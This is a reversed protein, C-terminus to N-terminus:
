RAARTSLRSVIRSLAASWSYERRVALLRSANTQKLYASMYSAIAEPTAAPHYMNSYPGAWAAVEQTAPVFIPVRSLTAELIPIVFTERDSTMLVADALAMMSLTEAFTVRPDKRRLWSLVTVTDELGRDGITQALQRRYDDTAEDHPSPSGAIVLHANPWDRKLHAVVDVARVLAKRRSMKAPVFIIPFSGELHRNRYVTAIEDAVRLARLSHVGAPVFHFNSEDIGLANALQGCMPSSCVFYEVAPHKCWMLSWPHENRRTWDYDNMCVALDFCWTAQQVDKREHALDALAATLAINYPLSFANISLLIDGPAVLADLQSRITQALQPLRTPFRAARVDHYIEQSQPHRTGIEPMSITNVGYSDATRAAATGTVLTASWGERQAAAVALEVAAIECGGVDPPSTYHLVFARPM